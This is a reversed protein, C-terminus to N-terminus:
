RVTVPQGDRLAAASEAVVQEGETVGSLIEVVQEFRKGTRVLRLEVRNSNVVMVMELQGRNVLAENPIVLIEQDGAPVLLRGFSGSRVDASPLDLEVRSTRSVPDGTPAIEAVKVTIQKNGLQVSLDMGVEFAGILADPVNSIFRLAAPDEIELLPKGPAALDGVDAMKRVIVGDFPAVVHAYGLLTESERLAADAVRFRAQAADFEAQTLAQQELLATLRKLDTQAQERMAAAQDLRAQVEHAGLEVLLEGKKVNQGLRIPMSEIRGSTKAELVARLKAEVTGVVEQVNRARETSVAVTKVSATTLESRAANQKSDKCSATILLSVMFLAVRLNAKM